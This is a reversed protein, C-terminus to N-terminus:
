RVILIIIMWFVALGLWGFVAAALSLGFLLALVGGVIGCQRAIPQRAIKAETATSGDRRSVGAILAAAVARCLRGLRLMVTDDTGSQM